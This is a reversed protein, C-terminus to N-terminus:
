IVAFTLSNIAMGSFSSPISEWPHRENLLVGDRDISVDLPINLDSLALPKAVIRINQRTLPNISWYPQCRYQYQLPIKLTLWDIM